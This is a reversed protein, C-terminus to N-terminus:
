FHRTSRFGMLVVPWEVLRRAEGLLTEDEVLEFVKPSPL